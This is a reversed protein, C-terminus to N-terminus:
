SWRLFDNPVLHGTLTLVRLGPRRRLVEAPVRFPNQRDGGPEYLLAAAGTREAIATLEAATSRPDVAVHVVGYTWAAAMAVVHECRNGIACAVRDGPRIGAYAYVVALRRAARELDAFTLRHHRCILAEREPRRRWAVELARGLTSPQEPDMPAGPQEAHEPGGLMRRGPRRPRRGAQSVAQPLSTRTSGSCTAPTM